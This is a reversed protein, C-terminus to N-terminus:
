ERPNLKLIDALLCWKGLNQFANYCHIVENLNEDIGIVPNDLKWGTEEVGSNRKVILDRNKLYNAPGYALDAHWTNVADLALHTCRGCCVYGLRNVADITYVYAEGVPNVCFMCNNQSKMMVLRQPYIPESLGTSM